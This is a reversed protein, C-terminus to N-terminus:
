ISTSLTEQNKITSIAKRKGQYYGVFVGVIALLIGCGLAIFTGSYQPVDVYVYKTTTTQSNGTEAAMADAISCTPLVMTSCRSDSSQVYLTVSVSCGVGTIFVSDTTRTFNYQSGYSVSPPNCGSPVSATVVVTSSMNEPTRQSTCDIPCNVVVSSQSSVSSTLLACILLTPISLQM